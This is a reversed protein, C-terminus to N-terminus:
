GPVAEARPLRVRPVRAGLWRYAGPSTAFALSIRGRANMKSCHDRAAEIAEAGVLWGVPATIAHRSSSERSFTVWESRNLLVVAGSLDCLVAGVERRMMGRFVEARLERMADLTVPGHVRVLGAGEEFRSKFAARTKKQM